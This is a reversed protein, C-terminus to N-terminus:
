RKRIKRATRGDLTGMPSVQIQAAMSQKMYNTM